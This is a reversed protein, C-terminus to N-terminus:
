LAGLYYKIFTVIIMIIYIDIIFIIVTILALFNASGICTKNRHIFFSRLFRSWNTTHSKLIMMESGYNVLLSAM